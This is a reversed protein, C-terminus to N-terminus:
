PQTTGAAGSALVVGAVILAIGLVDLGGPWEGLIPIAALTAVVPVLPGLVAARSPGILAVARGFAVLAVTGVAVGHYLAQWAIDFASAQGLGPGIVFLYVPLFGLASVLSVVAAAHLADLGSQRLAVTGIAWTLGALLFLGHGIAQDHDGTALSVGAISLVGLPILVLGLLRTKAFREGLLVASILAVWLPLTGPIMAAHAVPAYALGEAAILAYPAGLGCVMAVVIPLGGRLGHLRRRLLLPALILASIGVRFMTLDAAHLTGTVGIRSAIMWGAWILIALAGWAFGRLLSGQVLRM